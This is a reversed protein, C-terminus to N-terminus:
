KHHAQIMIKLALQYHIKISNTRKKIETIYGFVITFGNFKDLVTQIGSITMKTEPNSALFVCQGSKFKQIFDTM